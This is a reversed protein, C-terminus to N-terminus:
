RSCVTMKNESTIERDGQMYRDKGMMGNSKTENVQGCQVGVIPKLNGAREMIIYGKVLYPELEVNQGTELEVSQDGAAYLEELSLSDEREATIIKDKEM